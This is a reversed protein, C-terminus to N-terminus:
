AFAYVGADIADDFPGLLLVLGLWVGCTDDFPRLLKAMLEPIM